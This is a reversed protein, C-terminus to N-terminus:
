LRVNVIGLEKMFYIIVSFEGPGAKNVAAISV